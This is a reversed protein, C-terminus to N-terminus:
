GTKTKINGAMCFVLEFHWTADHRNSTGVSYLPFCQQKISGRTGAVLTLTKVHSEGSMKPERITGPLGIPCLWLWM